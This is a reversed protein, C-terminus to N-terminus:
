KSKAVKVQDSESPRKVQDCPRKGQDSGTMPITIDQSGLNKEKERVCLVACCLVCCLCVCVCVCVCV